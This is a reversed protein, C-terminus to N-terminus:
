SYWLLFITFHIYWYLSYYTSVLVWTKSFSKFVCPFAWLIISFNVVWNIPYNWKIFFFYIKYTYYINIHIIYLSIHMIFTVDIAGYICYTAVSEALSDVFIWTERELIHSKWQFLLQGALFKMEWCGKYRPHVM